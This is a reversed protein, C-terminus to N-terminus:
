FNSPWAAETSENTSREMPQHKRETLLSVNIPDFASFSELEKPAAYFIGSRFSSQSFSPKPGIFM